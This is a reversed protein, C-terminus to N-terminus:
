VKKKRDQAHCESIHCQFNRYIFLCSSDFANELKFRLLSKTILPFQVILYKVVFESVSTIKYIAKYTRVLLLVVIHTWVM